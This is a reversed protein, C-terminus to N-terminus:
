LKGNLCKAKPVAVTRTIEAAVVSVPQTCDLVKFHEAKSIHRYHALRQELTERSDPFPEAKLRSRTLSEEVPILLMLASTPKSAIRKLFRFLLWNSVTKEPFNLRFDLETDHVYRDCIVPRGLVRLARVVLGCIILLELISLVLWINLRRGSLARSRAESPGSPPLVRVPSRRLVRKVAELIPTYGGRIWIRHPRLGRSTFDEILLNIQTTKGAGDLGSFVILPASM